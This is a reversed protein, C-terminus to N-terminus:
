RYPTHHQVMDMVEFVEFLLGPMAVLASGTRSSAFGDLFARDRFKESRRQREDLLAGPVVGQNATRNPGELNPMMSANGAVEVHEGVLQSGGVLFPGGAFESQGDSTLIDARSTLEATTAAPGAPVAYVMTAVLVAIGVAAFRRGRAIVALFVTPRGDGGPSHVAVAFAKVLALMILSPTISSPSPVLFPASLGSLPLVAANAGVTWALLGCLLVVLGTVVPRREEDVSGTDAVVGCVVWVVGGILVAAPVTGFVAMIAAPTFDSAVAPIRRCSRRPSVESSEGSVFPM